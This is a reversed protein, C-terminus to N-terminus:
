HTCTKKREMSISESNLGWRVQGYEVTKAICPLSQFAEEQLPPQDSVLARILMPLIHESCFRASSKLVLRETERVLTLLADGVAVAMVDKLM